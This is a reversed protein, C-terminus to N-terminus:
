LTGAPAIVDRAKRVVADIDRRQAKLAAGHRTILRAQVGTELAALREAFGVEAKCRADRVAAALHESARHEPSGM